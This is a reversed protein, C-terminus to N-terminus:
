REFGFAVGTSFKTMTVEPLEDFPEPHRELVWRREGDARVGWHPDVGTAIAGLARHEGSALVTAWSIHEEELAPCGGLEVVVTGNGPVSVSWDLYSRPRFAPHLEFVAAVSEADDGLDLMKKLREAVVGGVGTFQKSVADFAAPAGLRTRVADAFGMVLLHGQLCVEDIIGLLAASAFDRMHLDADLPGSYDCMGDVEGSPGPVDPVPVAAARTRGMRAAAEPTPTPEASEDIEMTWQCHPRRDPPTRPPRHVPRVRLRPNTAWGTADFTPDEIDHCMAVVYEEGMPEVDMLAGCHDLHFEGHHDDIVTFRFDLFEPPAGIDLQMGKMCVEVTDGEFRLLRQMRKSYVPSAAMWEEIAVDRMTEIGHPIVTPMGARDILQGALLLERALDALQDHDLDSITLTAM